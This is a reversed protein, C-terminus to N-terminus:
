MSAVTVNPEQFISSAQAIPIFTTSSQQLSPGCNIINPLLNTLQHANFPNAPPRADSSSSQPAYNPPLQQVSNPQPPSPFLPRNSSSASANPALSPPAIPLASLDFSDVAKPLLSSDSQFESLPSCGTSNVAYASPQHKTLNTDLARLFSEFSFGKSVDDKDLDALTLASNLHDVEVIKM